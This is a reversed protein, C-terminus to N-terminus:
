PAPRARAYLLVFATWVFVQTALSAACAGVSGYRPILLANAAVNLLAGVGMTATVSQQRGLVFLAISLLYATSSFPFAWALLRLSPAAAATAPAPDILHLIPGAFTSLAAAMAVAVGGVLLLSRSQLHRFGRGDGTAHLRSLGPLLAAIVLDPFQVLAEPVRLAVAFLGTELPGRMADLMLADTRTYVLVFTTALWLPLANRSLRRLFAGDPWVMRLRVDLRRVAGTAGAAVVAVGAAMALLVTAGGPHLWLALAGAGVTLAKEAVVSVAEWHLRELGRFISRVFELLGFAAWYAWGGVALDFRGGLMGAATCGLVVALAVGYLALRLPLVRQVLAEAEHPAHAVDRAVLASTGLAALGVALGGLSFAAIMSGYERLGLVRVCAVSFFVFWLPKVLVSAAGLGSLRQVLAWLSSAGPPAAHPSATM